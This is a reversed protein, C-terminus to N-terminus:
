FNSSKIVCEAHKVCLKAKAGHLMEAIITSALSWGLRNNFRWVDNRHTSKHINHLYRVHVYDCVLDLM